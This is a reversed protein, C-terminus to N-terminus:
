SIFYSALYLDEALFTNKDSNKEKGTTVQITKCGANRGTLIDSFSDGIMWCKKLDLNFDEAAQELMGIKPKRCDCDISYKEIIGKPHHPCFYEATIIVGKKRLRKQMEKSFAFYDEETYKGRAIGSQNAVIILGYGLTQMRQLGEIASDIFELDEIKYVYEKDVNITGDRDLFIARDM